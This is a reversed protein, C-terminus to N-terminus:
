DLNTFPPPQRRPRNRLRILEDWAVVSMVACILLMAAGFAYFGLVVCGALLLVCMLLSVVAVILPSYRTMASGGTTAADLAHNHTSEAWPLHQFSGVHWEGGYTTRWNAVHENGDSFKIAIRTGDKPATEIPQWSM